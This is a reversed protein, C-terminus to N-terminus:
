NQQPGNPHGFKVLNEKKIKVWGKIQAERKRAETESAVSETRVLEVPHRTSTYKAGKGANHRAIRKSINNSIGTYLSGDSCRVIYIFWDTM